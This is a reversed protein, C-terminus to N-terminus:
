VIKSTIQHTHLLTWITFQKDASANVATRMAPSLRVSGM